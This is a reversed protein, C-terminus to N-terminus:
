EGYVYNAKLILNGNADYIDVNSLIVDTAWDSLVFYSRMYEWEKNENYYYQNYEGECTANQIRLGCDWIISVMEDGASSIDFTSMEVQENRFGERFIIWYTQGTEPYPPLEGLIEQYYNASDHQNSTATDYGYGVTGDVLNYSLVNEESGPEDYMIYVKDNKVEMMNPFSYSYDLNEVINITNGEKDIIILERGWYSSLYLTGEEDFAYSIGFDSDKNQWIVEGTMLDLTIMVGENNLYFMDNHIGLLQFPYADGITREETEYRWVEIGDETKGIVTAKQISNDWDEETYFDIDTVLLKELNEENEHNEETETESIVTEVEIEDVTEATNEESEAVVEQKKAEEQLKKVEKRKEEIAEDRIEEYAETLVELAKEYDGMAIYVDAMGLYADVNKPDIELVEMFYALAKEYELEELYKEGLDLKDKIQSTKHESLVFIGVGVLISLVIIISVIGVLKKKNM